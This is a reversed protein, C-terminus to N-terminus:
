RGSKLKKTFADAFKMCSGIIVDLQVSNQINYKEMVDEVDGAFLCIKQTQEDDSSNLENLFYDIEDMHKPTAKITTM